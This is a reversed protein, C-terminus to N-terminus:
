VNKELLELYTSYMKIFIEDLLVLISFRFFYNQYDYNKDVLVSLRPLNTQYSILNHACRNRQDFVISEFNLSQEILSLNNKKDDYNCFFSTKLFNNYERTFRLFMREQWKTIISDKLLDCIEKTAKNKIVDKVNNSFLDKIVNSERSLKNIEKILEKFVKQKDKISSCEGYNNQPKLFDYRFEFDNTAIEWLICKLKQESAGTMKLFTTQMIYECLPYSDIGDGIGKTANVCDELIGFIPTRIFKTHIGNKM